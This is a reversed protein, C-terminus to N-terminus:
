SKELKWAGYSQIFLGTLGAYTSIKQMIVITMLGEVTDMSLGFVPLAIHICWVLLFALYFFAYRKPYVENRFMAILYLILAILLTINSVVGIVEHALSYIDWHAFAMGIYLLGTLGGFYSGVKCLKREAKTEYFFQPLYSTQLAIFFFILLIGLVTYTLLFLICSITNSRGSYGKTRGLDSLFNTGFSYGQTNPDIYTGGTYFIMASGILIVHILPAVMTSIFIWKRWNKLNM